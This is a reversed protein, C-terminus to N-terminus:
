GVKVTGRMMASTTMPYGWGGDGNGCLAYCQWTYTGAKGTRFQFSVTVSGGKPAAPIPVNLGLATVTFTHTIDNAKVSKVSKGNVRIHGGVVGEIKTYGTAPAPGDDYSKITMTVLANAPLTFNGPKYEPANKHDMAGTLIDAAVKYTRAAAPRGSTLLHAPTRPAASALAGGLLVMAATAAAAHAFRKGFM